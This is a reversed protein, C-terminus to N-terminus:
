LDVLIKDGDVETNYVAVPDKAPGKEVAGTKVNFVSGHCMCQVSEGTLTGESLKCRMHTCIDSIVYYSGDINAVLLSTDDKEVAMMEGSALDGTSAIEVAM